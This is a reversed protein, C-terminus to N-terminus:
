FNRMVNCLIKVGSLHPKGAIRMINIKLKGKCTENGPDLPVLVDFPPTKNITLLAAIEETTLKLEQADCEYSAWEVDGSDGGTTGQHLAAFRCILPDLAAVGTATVAGDLEQQVLEVVEDAEWGTDQMDDNFPM